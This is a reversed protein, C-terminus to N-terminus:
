VNRRLVLAYDVPIAYEGNHSNQAGSTSWSEMEVRHWTIKAECLGTPKNNVLAVFDVISGGKKPRINQLRKLSLNTTYGFVNVQPL